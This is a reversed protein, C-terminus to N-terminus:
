RTWCNRAASSKPVRLKVDYNEGDPAEWTTVANGALLISLTKGVRALDVGLSTAADRKLVLNLAPDGESLNSEIDRVGQIKGLRRMLDESVASLERLDSGRLGVKIPKGQQQENAVSKITVGAVPRVRARADAIVQSLSRQRSDKAGIDVTVSGDNKGAGFNGEGVNM